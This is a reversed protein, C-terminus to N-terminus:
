IANYQMTCVACLFSYFQFVSRSLGWNQFGISKSNSIWKQKQNSYRITKFLYDSSTILIVTSANLHLEIPFFFEFVNLAGNFWLNFARNQNTRTNWIYLDSVMPDLTDVSPQSCQVPIHRTLFHKGSSPMSPM